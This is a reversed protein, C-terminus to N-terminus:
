GVLLREPWWRSLLFRRLWPVQNLLDVRFANKESQVSWLVQEPM